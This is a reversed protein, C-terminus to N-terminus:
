YSKLKEWFEPMTDKIFGQEPIDYYYPIGHMSFNNADKYYQIFYRHETITSIEFNGLVVEYPDSTCTINGNTQVYVPDFIKGEADLQSNLDNYINYTNENLGYQYIIYIWGAFLQTDAIFKDYDDPFFELPHRSINKETSYQPPGAINFSGAPYLSKWRYVPLKMPEPEPPIITDYYDYYQLIKRGYFRYHNLDGKYNMDSYIQIGYVSIIDETSNVAGTTNVKTIYNGYISDIVPIEPVTEWESRYIEQNAKILLSYSKNSEITLDTIYEGPNKEICEYFIGDDDNVYVIAGTVPEYESKQNNFGASKHLYVTNHSRNALFIAEVVLLDDVTDLHPTYIEECSSFIWILIAIYILNKM